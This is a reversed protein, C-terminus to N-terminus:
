CLQSRSLPCWALQLLGGPLMDNTSVEKASCASKLSYWFGGNGQLLSCKDSERPLGRLLVCVSFDLRKQLALALCNYHRAALIKAGEQCTRVFEVTRQQLCRM